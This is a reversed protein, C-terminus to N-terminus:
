HAQPVPLRSCARSAVLLRQIWCPKLWNIAFTRSASASRGDFRRQRQQGITSAAVREALTLTTSQARGGHFQRQPSDLERGQGDTVISEGLLPREDGAAVPGFATPMMRLRGSVEELLRFTKPYASRRAQFWITRAKVCKRLFRADAPFRCSTPANRPARWIVVHFFRCLKLHKTLKNSDEKRV